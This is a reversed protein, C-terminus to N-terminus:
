FRFVARIFPAVRPWQDLASYDMPKKTHSIPNGPYDHFANETAFGLGNAADWSMTPRGFFPQDVDLIQHHSIYTFGLEVTTNSSQTYFSFSYPNYNGPVLRWVLVALEGSGPMERIYSQRMTMPLWNYRFGIHKLQGRSHADAMFAGLCSWAIDMVSVPCTRLVKEEVLEWAVSSGVVLPLAGSGMHPYLARELTYFGLFHLQYSSFFWQGFEFRGDQFYIDTIGM